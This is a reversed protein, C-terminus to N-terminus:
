PHHTHCTKYHKFVSETPLERVIFIHKIKDFNLKIGTLQQRPLPGLASNARPGIM